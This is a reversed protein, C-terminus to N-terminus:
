GGLHDIRRRDRKTPRGVISLAPERSLRRQEVEAVRRAQSAATEEYLGRAQAAPGRLDSLAVVAVEWRTAGNDVVIADGVRVEKAPKVRDGGVRVKGTEVAQSALSRTKFFRAAWLWKDIRLREV